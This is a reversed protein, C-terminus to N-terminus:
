KAEKTSCSMVAYEVWVTQVTEFGVEDIRRSRQFFQHSISIARLFATVSALRTTYSWLDKTVDINKGRANETQDENKSLISRLYISSFPDFFIVGLISLLNISSFPGFFFDWLLSVLPLVACYYSTRPCIGLHLTYVCLLFILTDICAVYTCMVCIMDRHTMFLYRMHGYRCMCRIYERCM